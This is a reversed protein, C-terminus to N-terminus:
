KVLLAAGDDEADFGSLAVKDEIRSWFGQDMGAVAEDDDAGVGVELM